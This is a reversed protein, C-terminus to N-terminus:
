LDLFRKRYNSVPPLIVQNGRTKIIIIGSIDLKSNPYNLCLGMTFAM